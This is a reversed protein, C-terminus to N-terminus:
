RNLKKKKVKSISRIKPILRFLRLISSVIFLFGIVIVLFILLLSGLGYAVEYIKSSIISIDFIAESIIEDWKSLILNNNIATLLSIGTIAFLIIILIQRWLSRIKPKKKNRFVTRGLERNGRYINM